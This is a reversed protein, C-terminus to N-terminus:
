SVTSRSHAELTAASPRTSHQREGASPPEAVAPPDATSESHPVTRAPLLTAARGAGAAQQGTAAESALEIRANLVLAPSGQLRRAQPLSTLLWCHLLASAVVAMGLRHPLSPSQLPSPAM